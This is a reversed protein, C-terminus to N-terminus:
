GSTGRRIVPEEEASGLSLNEIGDDITEVSEEAKVVQQNAEALAKLMRGRGLGFSPKPASELNLPEHSISQQADLMCQLLRGRGQSRARTSPTSNYGTDDFDPSSISGTAELLSDTSTASSVNSRSEDSTSSASAVNTNAALQRLFAGRGYGRPIPQNPNM